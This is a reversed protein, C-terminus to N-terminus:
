KLRGTAQPHIIMRDHVILILDDAGDGTADAIVANRPEFGRGQDFGFSRTQFAEFETAHVLRGSATVAVIQVMQRQADLVVLDVFGDGNVDGVAIEHELRDEDDNRHAGLEHLTWREGALMVHAVSSGGIALVGAGGRGDFSGAALRGLSVGSVTIAGAEEWEGAGASDYMKLRGNASDAVVLRPRSRDRLVGVGAYRAQPDGDTIQAVVEWGREASYRCARVFNADAVLLEAKGDGDVDLMQTNSPGAASVLGFQAMEDKTLAASPTGDPGMPIMVMAEGDTMVLLDQDGDQDADAWRLADPSKRLGEAEVVGLVGGPGHFEIAIDRRDKVAVALLPAGDQQTPALAVPTAGSTEIALPKPFALRGDDANYDSVGVVSEEESVVFVELEPDDDWQGLAVGSPKKFTGHAASEGMGGGRRQTWIEVRNGAPDAAALDVLGDADIDGVAVSRAGASPNVFSRITVPAEPEDGADRLDVEERSLETLVIRRTPREILAISAKEEGDRRVPDVERLAPSEFRREAGLRGESGRPRTQLWVRLPSSEEPSVGLVDNLGDGNFDEVFSAVITAGQGYLTAEGVTGDSHLPAVAIREEALTVVELGADSAVDAIAFGTRTSGLGRVRREGITEFEGEDVQRLSVIEGPMGAYLIDMRGDGDLDHVTAALLRHKVTVDIRDYWPSEGLTNVGSTESEERAVRRAAHIEIRSKRNNLVVLDDLGDGTVDAVDALEFGDDVVVFRPEDFGYFGALDPEDALAFMSLGLSAVVALSRPM